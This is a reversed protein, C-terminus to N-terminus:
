IMNNKFSKLIFFFFDWFNVMPTKSSKNFSPTGAASPTARKSKSIVKSSSLAAPAPSSVGASVISCKAPSPATSSVTALVAEATYELCKELESNMVHEGPLTTYKVATESSSKNRKNLIQPVPIYHRKEYPPTLQSDTEPHQQDYLQKLKSINAKPASEYPVHILSRPSKSTCPTSAKYQTTTTTSTTSTPLNPEFKVLVPTRRTMMPQNQQYQDSSTTATTNNSTSSSPKNIHLSKQEKPKRAISEM